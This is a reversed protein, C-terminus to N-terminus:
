VFVKIREEVTLQVWESGQFLSARVTYFTEFIHPPNYLIGVSLREPYHTQLVYATEQVTKLPVAKNITWGKFDVLWVMEEQGPPLNLVANEMSYVLHKIQGERM